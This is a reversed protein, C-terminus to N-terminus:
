QRNGENLKPKKKKKTKKKKKKKPNFFPTEERDTSKTEAAFHTIIGQIIQQGVHTHPTNSERCTHPTNTARCTHPKNSERLETTLQETQKKHFFVNKLNVGKRSHTAPAVAICTRQM